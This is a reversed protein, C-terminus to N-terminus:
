SSSKECSYGLELFIMSNAGKHIVGKCIQGKIESDARLKGVTFFEKVTKYKHIFLFKICTLNLTIMTDGSTRSFKGFIPKVM